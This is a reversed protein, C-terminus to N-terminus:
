VDESRGPKSWPTTLSYELTLKAVSQFLQLEKKTRHALDLERRRNTKVPEYTQLTQHQAPPFCIYRPFCKPQILALSPITITPTQLINYVIAQTPELCFCYGGLSLTQVPDCALELLLLHLAIGIELKGARVCRCVGTLTLTIRSWAWPSLRRGDDKMLSM